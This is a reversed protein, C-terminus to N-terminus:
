RLNPTLQKRVLDAFEKAEQAYASAADAADAAVAYCASYRAVNYVAHCTNSIHRADHVAYWAAYCAARAAYYAADDNHAADNNHAAYGAADDADTSATRVADLSTEGRAWARVVEICRKPRVDGHSVYKLATEACACAALAVAQQTPWGKQGVMRECLWLLWDGRECTEWVTKLDKGRAWESAESCAHLSVLLADFQEANM